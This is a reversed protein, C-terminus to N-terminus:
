FLSSLLSFLPIRFDLSSREGREERRSNQLREGGIETKLGGGGGPVNM